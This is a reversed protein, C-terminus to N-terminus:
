VDPFLMAVNQPELSLRALEIARDRFATINGVDPIWGQQKASTLSKQAHVALVRRFPKRTECFTYHSLVNKIAAGTIAPQNNLNIVEQEFEPDLVRLKLKFEGDGMSHYEFIIRKRDFAKELVKHLRLFNRPQDVDDKSLGMVQLGEGVTHSPWLHACLIDCHTAQGFFMCYKSKAIDYYASIRDILPLGQTTAVTTDVSVIHDWPDLATYLAIAVGRRLPEVEKKVVRDVIEEIGALTITAPLLSILSIFM